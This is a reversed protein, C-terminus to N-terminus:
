HHTILWKKVDPITENITSMMQEYLKECQQNHGAKIYRELFQCAIALRQMGVCLCGGKMKHALAEVKKWDHNDHAGKILACEKPLTELFIGMLETFSKEWDDYTYIQHFAEVDLAPLSKIEFLQNENDPLEYGLAGKYEKQFYNRNTDVFSDM